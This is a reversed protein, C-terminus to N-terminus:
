PGDWPSFGSPPAYTQLSGKTQLTWVDGTNYLTYSPFFATASPTWSIIPLTGTGPNSSNVWTNNLAYWFKGATFDVAIAEVGSPGAINTTAYNAVYGPVNGFSGNYYLGISSGSLGLRVVPNLTADSIGRGGNGGTNPSSFEYYYKGSTHSTIGRLTQFGAAATTTATRGGNTLTISNAAADAANWISVTSPPNANVIDPMMDAHAAWSALCSLLIIVSRRM